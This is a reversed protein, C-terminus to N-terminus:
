PAVPFCGQGRLSACTQQAAARSALPGAQLRVLNGARVYFPQLGNLRGSLTEWARRANADNSFAGLQV